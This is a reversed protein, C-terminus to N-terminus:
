DDDRQLGWADYRFRHTGLRFRQADIREVTEGGGSGAVMWGPIAIRDVATGFPGALPDPLDILLDRAGLRTAVAEDRDFPPM